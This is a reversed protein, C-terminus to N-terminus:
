PRAATMLKTFSAMCRSCHEAREAGSADVRESIRRGCLTTTAQKAMM